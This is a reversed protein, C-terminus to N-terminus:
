SSVEKSAPHDQAWLELDNHAAHLAFAPTDGLADSTKVKRGSRYVTIRVEWESPRSLAGRLTETDGEKLAAVQDQLDAQAVVKAHISDAAEAQERILRANWHEDRRERGTPAAENM